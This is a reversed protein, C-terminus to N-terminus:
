KAKPRGPGRKEPQEEAAAEVSVEAAIEAAKIRLVEPPVTPEKAREARAKALAVDEETVVVMIDRGAM